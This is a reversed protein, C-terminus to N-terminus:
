EKINAPVVPYSGGFCGSCIGCRYTEGVVQYLGEQSLYILQDVDIERRISELERRYAILQRRTQFDMGSPCVDVIPPFGVVFIVEKAGARRLMAAIVKATNSRVISDDVVIVRKGEVEDKKLHLKKRVVSVREENTVATFSRTQGGLPSHARQFAERFILQFPTLLRASLIDALGEAFHKGSDLIPIVIDGSLKPNESAIRRGVERRFDEHYIGHIRSRPNSFYISEFICFREDAAAYQVSRPEKKGREFVLMEGPEVDRWYKAEPFQDFSVTESCIIYGDGLRGLSLPRVGYKDRIAFVKNRTIILLSYACVIKSLAYLVASEVSREGSRLMLHLLIETDSTSDFKCGLKKLELRLPDSNVLTGNHAIALPGYVSDEVVLPQVNNPNNPDGKTAYRCHGIATQGPLEARFRRADFERFQVSFPGVRRRNYIKGRRRSVIGGGREGRKEIRTLMQGVVYSARSVNVAAALGCNEPFLERFDFSMEEAVSGRLCIRKM